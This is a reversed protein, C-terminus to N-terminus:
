GHTAHPGHDTVQADFWAHLAARLGEDGTAYVIRGGAPVDTYSLTIRGAHGRLDALGPMADGHIRAPDAFDGRRFRDAEARLHERVLDVQTGDAPDDAVVTQTGGRDDKRFEHTTRDLM